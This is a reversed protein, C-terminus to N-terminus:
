EDTDDDDDGWEVFYCAAKHPCFICGKKKPKSSTKKRDELSTYDPYKLDLRDKPYERGDFCDKQDDNFAKQSQRRESFALKERQETQNWLPLIDMVRKKVEDFSHRGRHGLLAILRTVFFQLQFKTTFVPKEQLIYDYLNRWQCYADNVEIERVCTGPPVDTVIFDEARIYPIELQLVSDHENIRSISDVRNPHIHYEMTLVRLYPSMTMTKDNFKDIWSFIVDPLQLALYFLYRNGIQNTEKYHIYTDCLRQVAESADCLNTLLNKSLPWPYEKKTGPMHMDDCFCIMARKEQYQASELNAYVGVRDDDTEEDVGSEDQLKGGLFFLMADALSDTTCSKLYRPRQKLRHFIEYVAEKEEGAINVYAAKSQLLKEVKHFHDTLNVRGSNQFLLKADKLIDELLGTLDDLEDQTMSFPGVSSLPNGMIKHWRGYASNDSNGEFLPFIHQRMEHLLQINHKWEDLVHCDEFYVACKNFCAMQKDVDSTNRGAWGTAICKRIDEVDFRLTKKEADWMQYLQYLYQGSPYALFHKKGRFDPFFTDMFDQLDQRGPTYLRIDNKKLRESLNRAFSFIDPYEQIAVRNDTCDDKRIHSFMGAYYHKMRNGLADLKKKPFTKLYPNTEWVEYADPVADDYYNLFYVPIGLSRFADMLRAQVPMIDYFGQFYVADMDNFLRYKKRQIEVELDKILHSFSKQNGWRKMMNQFDAVAEDEKWVKRYVELFVPLGQYDKSLMDPSIGAEVLMRISNWVDLRNAKLAHRENDTVCLSPESILEGLGIIEVLAAAQEYWFPMLTRLIKNIHVTKGNNERYTWLNDAMKKTATIVPGKPFRGDNAANRLHGILEEKNRYLYCVPEIM